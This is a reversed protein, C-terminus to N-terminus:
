GYEQSYIIEALSLNSGLVQKLLDFLSSLTWNIQLVVALLYAQSKASSEKRLERIPRSLAM